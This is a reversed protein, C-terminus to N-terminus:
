SPRTFPFASREPARSAGIMGVVSWGEDRLRKAVAYGIMGEVGTVLVTQNMMKIGPRLYASHWHEANYLM